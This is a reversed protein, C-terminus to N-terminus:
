WTFCCNRKRFLLYLADEGQIPFEKGARWSASSAGFPQCCKGNVLATNVIPGLMQTKYARHDMMGDPHPGCLAGWGHYRWSFFYKHLKYMLRQTALLTSDVMGNHHVTWGTQPYLTGQCGACWFLPALGIYATAAVCDAACAAIAVPSAFLGADANFISSLEPSSWSADVETMYTLDWPTQLFCPNDTSMGLIWFLPFVYHHAHYFAENTHGSNSPLKRAHRPTTLDTSLIQGGLSPMCYPTRVVETLLSPEWFGFSLGVRETPWGPCFCIPDEPNEIDSQNGINAIPAEGLTLPLMCRWCVNSVYDSVSYSPCTGLANATMSWATGGFTLCCLAALLRLAIRIM